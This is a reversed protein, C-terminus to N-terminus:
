SVTVVSRVFKDHLAQKKKTFFIFLVGVRIFAQLFYRCSARIFSLPEGELNTVQLGLVQKGITAKRKSSEFCAFYLWSTLLIGGYFWFGIMSLGSVIESILSIGLLFSTLLYIAILVIGDLAFALLRRFAGSYKM